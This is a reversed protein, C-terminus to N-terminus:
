SMEQAVSRPPWSSQVPVVLLLVRRFPITREMCDIMCSVNSLGYCLFVPSM